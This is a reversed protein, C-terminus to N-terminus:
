DMYPVIVVLRYTTFFQGQDAVELTELWSEGISAERRSDARWDRVLVRMISRIRAWHQQEREEQTPGAIVTVGEGYPKPVPLTAFSNDYGEVTSPTGGEFTVLFEYISDAYARPQGSRVHEITVQRWPRRAIGEPHEILDYKGNPTKTTNRTTPM